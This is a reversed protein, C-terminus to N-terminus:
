PEESADDNFQQAVDGGAVPDRRSFLDTLFEDPIHHSEINKQQRDHQEFATSCEIRKTGKIEDVDRESRDDKLRTPYPGKESKREGAKPQQECTVDGTGAVQVRM